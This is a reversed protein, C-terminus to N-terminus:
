TYINAQYFQQVKDQMSKIKNIKCQLRRREGLQGFYRVIREKHEKDGALWPLVQKKDGEVQIVGLGYSHLFNINNKYEKCLEEWFKYVGFDDKYVCTDHFLVVAGPALKPLWTDFDHKVANYTHFGDIHLLDVTKDGFDDLAEDFTKRLLTSFKAFNIDNCKKLLDYVRDTYAGTHADGKWTDVAYCRTNLGFDQVAQCFAAYSNGSHTGLEVFIQPKKQSIIWGAFSVHGCWAHPDFHIRPNFEAIDILNEYNVTM